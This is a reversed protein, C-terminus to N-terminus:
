EEAPTGNATSASENVEPENAVSSNSGGAYVQSYAIFDCISNGSKSLDINNFLSLPACTVIADAQNNSVGRVIVAWCYDGSTGYECYFTHGSATVGDPLVVDKETCTETPSGFGCLDAVDSAASANDGSQAVESAPITLTLGGYNSGQQLEDTVDTGDPQSVSAAWPTPSFLITEGVENRFREVAGGTEARYGVELTFGQNTLYPSLISASSTFYELLHHYDSPNPDTVVVQVVGDSGARTNAAPSTSLVLGKQEELGSKYTVNATLGASQLAAVADAEKKGVVDPVVPPQSVTLVVEETSMFIGGEAPSVGLVTGDPQDSYSYKLTVNRAGAAELAARAEEVSLGVVSPITRDTAVTVTVTSGEPIRTGPAPDCSLVYGTGSDAPETLISVSFGKEELLQTARGQTTGVIRPVSRGGWVELAYTGAALGAAIAALLLLFLVVTRYYGRTHKRPKSSADLPIDESHKIRTSQRPATEARVDNKRLTHMRWTAVGVGEAGTSEDGSIPDDELAGPVTPRHSTGDARASVQGELFEPVRHGQVPKREERARSTASRPVVETPGADDSAVDELRVPASAVTKAPDPVGSISRKPTRRAPRQGSPMPAGCSPCVDAGDPIKAGCAECRM